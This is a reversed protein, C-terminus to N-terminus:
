GTTRGLARAWSRAGDWAADRDDGLLLDALTPLVGLDSMVILGNAQDQALLTPTGPCVDLGVTERVFAGADSLFRKVIVTPPLHQRTGSPAPRDDGAREVRCRLVQSRASGGLDVPDTLRVAGLTPALASQALAVTNQM